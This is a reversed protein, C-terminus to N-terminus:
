QRLDYQSVAGLPTAGGSYDPLWQDRENAFSEAVQELGPFGESSEAWIAYYCRGRRTTASVYVHGTGLMWAKFDAQRPPPNAKMAGFKLEAAAKGSSMIDEGTLCFFKGNPGLEEIRFEDAELNEDEPYEDGLFGKINSLASDDFQWLQFNSGAVRIWGQHEMMYDRADSVGEAFFKVAEAEAGIALLAAQDMLDLKDGPVLNELNKALDYADAEQIDEDEPHLARFELVDDWNREIQKRNREASEEPDIGLASWFAMGEHNQDGVDGDAFWSSGTDDIWWEGRLPNFRREDAGAAGYGRPSPPNM